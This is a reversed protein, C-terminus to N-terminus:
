LQLRSRSLNTLRLLRHFIPGPNSNATSLPPHSRVFRPYTYNHQSSNSITMSIATHELPPPPSTSSLWLITHDPPRSQPRGSFHPFGAFSLLARSRSALSVQPCHSPAIATPAQLKPWDPSGIQRVEHGEGIVARTSAPQERFGREPRPNQVLLWDVPKIQSSLPGQAEM